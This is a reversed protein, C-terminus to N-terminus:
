SFFWAPWFLFIILFSTVGKFPKLPCTHNGKQFDQHNHSLPFDKNAKAKHIFAASMRFLKILPLSQSRKFHERIYFFLCFSFRLLLLSPRTVKQFSMNVYPVLRPVTHFKWPAVLVNRKLQPLKIKWSKFLLHIKSHMSSFKNFPSIFYTNPFPEHTLTFPWWEAEYPIFGHKQM